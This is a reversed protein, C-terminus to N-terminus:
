ISPSRGGHCEEEWQISQWISYGIFVCNHEVVHGLKIALLFASSRTYVYMHPPRHSIHFVHMKKQAYGFFDQRALSYCSSLLPRHSRSATARLSFHPIHARIHPSSEREREKDMGATNVYTGAAAACISCAALAPATRGATRTRRPTSRPAATRTRIGLPPVYSLFPTM